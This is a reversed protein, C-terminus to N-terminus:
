PTAPEARLLRDAITIRTERHLVLWQHAVVSLPAPGMVVHEAGPLQCRAPPAMADGAIAISTTPVPAPGELEQLLPSGPLMQWAGRSVLGLTAVGLLGAWTGRFPCGVAVFRRTRAAGDLNRLWWLGIIGGLSMGVIDVREAGTRNRIREINRDLQRSMRRVDGMVLPELRVLHGDLGQTALGRQIPLLAWSASLYGHVLVVPPQQESM